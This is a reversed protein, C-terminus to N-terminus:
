LQNDSFDISKDLKSVDCTVYCSTHKVPTM